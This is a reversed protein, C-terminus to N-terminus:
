QPAKKTLNETKNPVNFDIVNQKTNSSFVIVSYTYMIDRNNFIQITSLSINEPLNCYEPYVVSLSQHNNNIM